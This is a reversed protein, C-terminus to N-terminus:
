KVVLKSVYYRGAKDEVKIWYLGESLNGRKLLVSNQTPTGTQLLQGLSSILEWRVIDGEAFYSDIESLYILASEEMPNPQIRITRVVLEQNGFSVKNVVTNTELPEEFDFQIAVQNKIELGETVSTNPLIRFDIFGHSNPEDRTSDALMIYPFRFTLVGDENISQVYDHSASIVKISSWDLHPSLPDQVIVHTAPASGVNQFRIRYTISDTPLINGEPFVRLDNPDIAGAITNLDNYTNDAVNCDSPVNRFTGVTSISAGVTASA